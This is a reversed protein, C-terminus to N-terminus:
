RWNITLLIAIYVVVFINGSINRKFSKADNASLINIMIMFLCILTVIGKVIPAVSIM